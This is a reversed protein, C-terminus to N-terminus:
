GVELCKTKKKFDNSPKRFEHKSQIWKMDKKEVRGEAVGNRGLTEDHATKTKLGSLEGLTNGTQADTELWRRFCPSGKLPQM